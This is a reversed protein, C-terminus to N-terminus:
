AILDNELLNKSCGKTLAAPKVNNQVAIEHKYLLLVNPLKNYPSLSRESMRYGKLLGSKITM